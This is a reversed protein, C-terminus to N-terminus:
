EHLESVTYSVRTRTFQQNIRVLYLGFISLCLLILANFFSVIVVTSAWGPVSVGYALTNYVARAGLLVSVAFALLCLLGVFFLPYSSYSFVLNAALLLSRKLNYNSRGFPRPDHRVPVNVYTSANSLLMCTIYPFAASMQLASSAVVRKAARFSTLQFGRPLGFIRRIIWDIFGGGMNRLAAHKKTDYAAIVLDYGSRIGEVLKPVEEPPNQLDDDMTVVIEGSTLSFGCLTANHQGRNTLLKAIKLTKGHESKLQKLVEWSSDPSADDVLIIEANWDMKKFVETLRAVLTRLSQESRYVPVVVSVQLPQKEMAVPRSYCLFQFPTLHAV